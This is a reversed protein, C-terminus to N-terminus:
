DTSGSQKKKLNFEHSTGYLRYSWMYVLLYRELINYVHLM